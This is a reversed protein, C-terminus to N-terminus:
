STVKKTRRPTMDHDFGSGQGRKTKRAKEVNRRGKGNRKEAMGIKVPRVARKASRIAANLGKTNGSELDEKMALKRRKAKRSLGSLQDRKPKKENATAKQKWVPLDKGGSEHDQKSAAEAQRKEKSSQFWTRVPRSYIEAEHEAMNQGKKLEM